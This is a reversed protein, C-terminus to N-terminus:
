LVLVVTKVKLVSLEVLVLQSQITEQQYKLQPNPQPEVVLHKQDLLIEIVVPEVAVLVL